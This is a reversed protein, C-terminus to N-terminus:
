KLIVGIGFLPYGDTQKIPESLAVGDQESINQIRYKYSFQLFTKAGLPVRVGAGFLLASGKQSAITRDTFGRNVLFAYGFEFYLVKFMLDLKPGLLIDTESAGQKDFQFFTGLGITKNFRYNLETQTLLTSGSPGSGGQESSNTLFMAGTAMFWKTEAVAKGAAFSNISVLASVLLFLLFQVLQRGHQFVQPGSRDKTGNNSKM